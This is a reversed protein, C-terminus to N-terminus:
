AASVFWTETMPLLSEDAQSGAVTPPDIVLSLVAYVNAPRGRGNGTRKKGVLRAAGQKELAKLIMYGEGYSVNIAEAFESITVTM